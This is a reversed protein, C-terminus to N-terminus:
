NLLTDVRVIKLKRKMAWQEFEESADDPGRSKGDWVSIALSVKSLALAKDLVAATVASFSQQQNPTGSLITLRGLSGAADIAQWYMGAWHGPRDSVSTSYFSQADYPLIIHSRIGMHRALDLAILDAGCAASCVLDSVKLRALNDGIDARVIEVNALPFRPEAADLEDIRRGALAAVSPKGAPSTPIRPM